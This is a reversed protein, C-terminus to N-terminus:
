AACRHKTEHAGLEKLAAECVSRADKTTQRLAAYIKASGTIMGAEFDCAASYYAASLRPM